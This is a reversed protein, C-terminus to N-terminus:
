PYILSLVMLLITVATGTSQTSSTPPPPPAVVGPTDTQGALVSVALTLSLVTVATIQRLTKVKILRRSIQLFKAIESAVLIIPRRFWQLLRVSQTLNRETESEKGQL